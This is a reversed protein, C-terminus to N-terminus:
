QLSYGQRLAYDWDCEFDCGVVKRLSAPRYIWVEGCEMTSLDYFRRSPVAGQTQEVVEVHGISKLPTHADRGFPQPPVDASVVVATHEPDGLTVYSGRAMGKERIRVSRWEVIDGARVYGDQAHWTQDDPHSVSAYYLLVGHTRDISPFPVDHPVHEAAHELASNAMDWCEGRGIPRAREFAEEAFSSAVSGYTASADYLDAASWDSSLAPRPRYRGDIKVSTVPRNQRISPEDLASWDVRYWAISADAFLVCGVITKNHGISQMSGAWRMDKRGHLFPPIPQADLFWAPQSTSWPLISHLLDQAFSGHMTPRPYSRTTVAVPLSVSEGKDVSSLRPTETVLGLM